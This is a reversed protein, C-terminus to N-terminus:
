KWINGTKKEHKNLANAHAAAQNHTDFCGGIDSYIKGKKGYVIRTVTHGLGQFSKVAVWPTYEVPVLSGM